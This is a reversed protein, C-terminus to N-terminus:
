HSTQLVGEAILINVMDRDTSVMEDLIDSLIQTYKLVVDRSNPACNSMGAIQSLFSMHLKKHTDIHGAYKTYPLADMMTDERTFHEDAFRFLRVAKDRIDDFYNQNHLLKGIEAIMRSLAAHDNDIERIGLRADLRLGTLKM